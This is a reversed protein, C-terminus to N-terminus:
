YTQLVVGCCLDRLKWDITFHSITDCFYTIGLQLESHTFLLMLVFDKQKLDITFYSTRIIINISVEQKLDGGM